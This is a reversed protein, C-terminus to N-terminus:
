TDFVVVPKVARGERLADMADNLGDAPFTSLLAEVPFRGAAWLDLLLPIFVQPVSDGEVVGRIRRGVVLDRLPLGVETGAPGSGILCTTGTNHTAAVATRIVDPRGTTDIACDFGALAGGDALVQHAGLATALERREAVPEVVAIRSAGAVGAALVASLGVTGGGFVAIRAGPRAKLTNLVAGAGTQVGCGLPAAVEFPVGDPVPVLNRAKTLAHDAFCSQGFFGGTVPDGEGTRLRAPAGGGFGTNLPRFSDCYSPRGLHCSPCSGCSSFSIAVRGGPEHGTVEAGTAVVVGAGEHGAILPFTGPRSGNTYALDTRCVGAAAVRVLVEDPRLEDLWLPMRTLAAGPTEAVWADIVPLM